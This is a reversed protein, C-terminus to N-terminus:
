TFHLPSALYIMTLKNWELVKGVPGFKKNNQSTHSFHTFSLGLVPPTPPSSLPNLKPLPHPGGELYSFFNLNHTAFDGNEHCKKFKSM